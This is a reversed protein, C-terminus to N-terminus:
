VYCDSKFDSLFKNAVSTIHIENSAKSLIKRAKLIESFVPEILVSKCLNHSFFGIELPSFGPHVNPVAVPVGHTLFAAVSGSKGLSHRPVPTIGVTCSRLIGSVKEPKVFGTSYVINEFGSLEKIKNGVLNMKTDDGGILWVEVDLNHSLAQEFFRKLHNIVANSVGAQSFFGIRFVNYQNDSETNCNIEINSFLPLEDVHYGLKRLELQYVPLHTHIIEPNLFKLIRKVLLKQLRSVIFSKLINGKDIGIWLEHFMIHWRRGEGVKKLLSCLEFPLGKSNFSFLCFQFSVWDPNQIDIWEKAQRLKLKYSLSASLRLIKFNIDNAQQMGEYSNSIYTDNLALVVTKHGHYNLEFSLRNVYDGIGHKGPEFCSCVFCVKM